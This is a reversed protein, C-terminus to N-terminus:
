RHIWTVSSFYSNLKWVKGATHEVQAVTATFSPFTADFSSVLCTLSTPLHDHPWTLWTLCPVWSMNSHLCTLVYPVSADSCTLVWSVNVRPCTLFCSVNAYSCTVVCNVNERSWTLVCPVNAYSGKLVYPM